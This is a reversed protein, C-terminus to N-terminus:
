LNGRCFGYMLAADVTHLSFDDQAHKMADQLDFQENIFYSLYGDQADILEALQPAFQPQLGDVRSTALGSATYYEINRPNVLYDLQYLLAQSLLSTVKTAKTSDDPDLGDGDTDDCHVVTGYQPNGSIFADVTVLLVMLPISSFDTSPDARPQLATALHNLQVSPNVMYPLLTARHTPRWRYMGGLSNYARLGKGPTLLEATSYPRRVNPYEYQDCSFEVVFRDGNAFCLAATRYTQLLLPIRDM